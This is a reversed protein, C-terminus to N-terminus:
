DINYRELVQLVQYILFDLRDIRFNINHDNLKDARYRIVDLTFSIDKIREKLNLLYKRKVPFIKDSRNLKEQLETELLDIKENLYNVLTSATIINFSRYLSSTNLM